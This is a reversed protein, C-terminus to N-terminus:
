DSCSKKCTFWCADQERAKGGHFYFMQEIQYFSYLVCINSQGTNKRVTTRKKGNQKRFLDRCLLVLYNDRKQEAPSLIEAINKRLCFLDM